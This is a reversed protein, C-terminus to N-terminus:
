RGNRRKFMLVRRRLAADAIEVEEYDRKLYDMFLGKIRTPEDELYERQVVVLVPQSAFTKRIEDVVDIGYPVFREESIQWSFAFRGAPVTDSLVYIEPTLNLVYIPAGAPALRKIQDAIAWAPNLIPQCLRKWLGWADLSIPFAALAAVATVALARGRGEAGLRDIGLAALLSLPAALVIFYHDFFNGTYTASFAAGLLWALLLWYPVATRCPARLVAPTVVAALSIGGALMLPAQGYAAWMIDKLSRIPDALGFASKAYYAPSVFNALVMDEVAGVRWFWAFVILTPLLFAVIFSGFLQAGDILRRRESLVVVGFVLGLFATEPATLFKIQLAVGQILGFLFAVKCHRAIGAPRCLHSGLLLMSLTGFVIFFNEANAGNGEAVLMYAPLLIAAHLGARPRDFVRGGIKALLLATALVALASAIVVASVSKGSVFVIAAYILFIGVPKYDWIDVYLRRGELLQQGAIMYFGEDWGFPDVFLSPARLVAVWLTLGFVVRGSLRFDKSSGAPM